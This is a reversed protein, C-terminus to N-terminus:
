VWDHSLVRKGAESFVFTTGMKAPGEGEDTEADVWLYTSGQVKVTGYFPGSSGQPLARAIAKKTKDQASSDATLADLADQLSTAIHLKASNHVDAEVKATIASKQPGSLAESSTSDTTSEPSSEPAGGCAIALAPVFIALLLATRM